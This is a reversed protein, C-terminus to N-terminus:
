RNLNKFLEHLVGTSYLIIFGALGLVSLVIGLWPIIKATSYAQPKQNMQSLGIISLILGVISGIPGCCLLGLIGFVLGAVAFNNSGAAAYTPQTVYTPAALPPPTATRLADAFEPYSSLAKWGGGDFSIMTQANARGQTIWERIREAPVPGYERGDAGMMKYM